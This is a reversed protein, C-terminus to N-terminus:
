VETKVTYKNTAWHLFNLQMSVLSLWVKGILAALILVNILHVSFTESGLPTFCKSFLILVNSISSLKKLVQVWTTHFM